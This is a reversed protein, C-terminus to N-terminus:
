RSFYWDYVERAVPVASSHGEGGGEVLIVMAIEPDEYPAYSVFWAHTKDEEGFQATGTKGAVSVPLNNLSQATGSTITQRMGEQVIKVIGNPVMNDKIIKPDVSTVEGDNKEIRSVIHPKYLKGGNAIAAIYNALQLPTTTIYGQGIAAHYSNGIFWKEDFKEQKWEESPIFGSVEGPIDIGALSGLGFMENYKKMRSMGLGEIGGYGGGIHYFFVDCSEAIAKRIDTSGHTKWDGFHYSGVSIGGGCNISTENNVVGESLAAVAILPKIISGPPYEGSTARNFLPKTSDNILSLYEEQSLGKSFLNNDFGPLSVLALVEGNKPNIAVAAATKTETQELISSLSDAIRKQLEANVSLILDSGPKSNIIGLERKINGLSDVEVQLAGHVGRLYKEYSKELGQKGIYDTLLYGPNDELEEKNIKGEYGLIHAFILGDVYERVATKEMMIGSLKSSREMLILSEEQSINGKLLVPEISARNVSEIKVIIEGENIKLIESLEESLEKIKEGESPLDAPIIVADVSPINNVLVSGTRDVIKGRPAKIVVSRVRNGKAIEQYYSGKVVNLYFVRGGLVVLAIIVLWWFIKLPKKKIPREMRAAEKETATLLYGEIEVGQSSKLSDSIKRFKKAM